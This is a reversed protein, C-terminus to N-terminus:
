HSHPCSADPECLKHCRTLTHSTHPHTLPHPRSHRHLTSHARDDIERATALVSQTLLTPTVAVVPGPIAGGFVWVVRCVCVCVRVCVCVCVCVCVLESVLVHVGSVSVCVLVLGVQKCQSM